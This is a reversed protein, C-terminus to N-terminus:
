LFRKNNRTRVRAICFLRHTRKFFCDIIPIRDSNNCCASPKNFHCFLFPHWINLNWIRSNLRTRGKAKCKFCQCFHNPVISNNLFRIRVFPAALVTSFKLGTVAGGTLNFNEQVALGAAVPLVALDALSWGQYIQLQGDQDSNCFGVLAAYTPTSRKGLVDSGLFFSGSEFALGDNFPTNSRALVLSTYDAM